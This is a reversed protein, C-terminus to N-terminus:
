QRAKMALRKNRIFMGLLLSAVVVLIVILVFGGKSVTSLLFAALPQGGSAFIANHSASIEEATLARNYIRVRDIIGSFGLNHWSGSYQVPLQAGIVLDGATNRVAGITNAASAAESGNVYMVIRGSDWTAALHYWKGTDLVNPNDVYLYSGTANFISFRLIGDPTWFQLSYAEDNFDTRSGKHVIGGFPTYANMYVVAEVTGAEGLTLADSDPVSV